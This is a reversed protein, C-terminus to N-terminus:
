FRPGGGAQCLILLFTGLSIIGFVPIGLAILIVVFVRGVTRATGGETTPWSVRLVSAVIPTVLLAYALAVGPAWFLLEFAVISLMGACLFGLVVWPAENIPPKTSAIGLPLDLKRQVTERCLWCVSTTSEGNDAGCHPCYWKM